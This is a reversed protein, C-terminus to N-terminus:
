CSLLCRLVEKVLIYLDHKDSLVDAQKVCFHSLNYYIDIYRIYIGNHNQNCAFGRPTIKIKLVHVLNIKAWEQKILELQYKSISIIDINYAM